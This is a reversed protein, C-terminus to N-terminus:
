PVILYEDVSYSGKEGSLIALIRQGIALKSFGAKEVAKSKQNYLNQMTGVQVDAGYSSKDYDIITIKYNDEDINSVKGAAVTIQPEQYVTYSIEEGGIDSIFATIVQGAALDTFELAALDYGSLSYFNTIEPEVTLKIAEQGDALTIVKDKITKIEGSVVRKPSNRLELVKDELKEKLVDAEKTAETKSSDLNVKQAQFYFVKLVKLQEKDQNLEFMIIENLGPKLKLNHSFGTKGIKIPLLELQNAIFLNSALDAQGSITLSNKTLLASNQPLKDFVALKASKATTKPALGTVQFTNNAPKHNQPAKGFNSFYIAGFLGLIVGIIIAVIAEKNM